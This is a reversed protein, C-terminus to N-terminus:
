ELLTMGAKGKNKKGRQHHQPGFEEHPTRLLAHFQLDYPVMQWLISKDVQVNHFQLCTQLNTGWLNSAWLIYNGCFYLSVSTYLNLNDFDFRRFLIRWYGQQESAKQHFLFTELTKWFLTTSDLYLIKNQFSVYFFALCIKM